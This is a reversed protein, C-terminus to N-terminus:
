FDFVTFNSRSCKKLMTPHQQSTGETMQTVQGNYSFLAGHVAAFPQKTM